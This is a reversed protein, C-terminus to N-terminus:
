KTLTSDLWIKRGNTPQVPRSNGAYADTFADIQSISMSIPTSFVNWAVNESCPPTTLSGTYRFTQKNAPLLKKWNLEIPTDAPDATALPIADIFEQWAENAKGEKVMVGVVALKGDETKHVFHVELPYRKGNIKHESPAHFHFQAFPYTVGGVTITSNAAEGAPEAEVTHGNDFVEAEGAIYNFVINKLGKRTPKTLNIPTQATGDVCTVYAADLTGWHSPGTAGKYSWATAAYSAATGALLVSLASAVVVAFRRNEKIKM